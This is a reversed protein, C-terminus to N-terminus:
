GKQKLNEALNVARLAGCTACRELQLERKVFLGKFEDGVMTATVLAGLPAWKADECSPCADTGTSASRQPRPLWLLAIIDRRTM